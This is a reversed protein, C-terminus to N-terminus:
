RNVALQERAMLWSELNARSTGLLTHFQIGAMGEASTWAALGKGEIVAGLGLEFAFDISAKHKLPKSWRVAMGGESLNTIRAHQENGGVVFTVALNVPHRFYRRREKLLVDKAITLHLTVGDVNLPKRLLFNAGANLTATSEKASGLCAFIAVKANSPGRRVAEILGQGGAIQMDVFVGDIRKRELYDRAAEATPVVALKGGYKKVGGSIATLTAYDDSVLLFELESLASM